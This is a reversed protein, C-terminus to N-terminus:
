NGEAALEESTIAGSQALITLANKEAEGTVNHVTVLSAGHHIAEVYFEAKDESIGHDKLIGAINEHPSTMQSIAGALPGAAVLPGTGPVLLAMAEVSRFLM